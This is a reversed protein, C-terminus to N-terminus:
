LISFYQNLLTLGVGSFLPLTLNDDFAFSFLEACAGICGACFSFIFVRGDLPGGLAVLCYMWATVFGVMLGALFGELSKGFAIKNKGFMVGFCGAIPDIFILFFLSLHAINEEFLLLSLACGLSYFPLGSYTSWETDRMFVGLTRVVQSNLAPYRLRFFEGVFIIGSLLFLAAGMTQPPIGLARYLTFGLIGTGIHWFRRPLHIDHEAYLIRM